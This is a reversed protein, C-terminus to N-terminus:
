PIRIKIVHLTGGIKVGINWYPHTRLSHQMYVGLAWRHHGAAEFAVDRQTPRLPYVAADYYVPRRATGNVILTYARGVHVTFAGREYPAGVLYQARVTVTLSARTINGARDTATARYTVRTGHVTKALRCSAVNSLRDSAVCRASPASGGYTAGDRPGAISVKPRTLDIDIGRVAVTAVGGDTATITRTVSQGAGQHRLMVADPCPRTLPAGATTCTYTVTVPSRYWGADSRHRASSLRATIKPDHRTISASSATFDPDGSYVAAVTHARGTPVTYTVAAVGNVLTATGVANGGVSFAVAGTPTGIGPAVAAVVARLDHAHVSLTTTTAAQDVVPTVSGTASTYTVGDDPTFVASVPHSGPALAAGGPATLAPSLATGGSVVVPAGLDTGDVSFQVMGAPTGSDATVTATAHVEQGYVSSAPSTTVSVATGVKTVAITQQVQTAPAFTGDGSQDFDVVCSGAADFSVTSGTLSCASDTTTPDISFAVDLGSDSNAALPYSGSVSAPSPPTSTITITQSKRVVTLTFAQDAHGASNTATLTLPYAGASDAAPTGALTGTGDGNDVFSVGSPLTGSETLTTATPFGATTTLTLSGADGVTFTTHDVSTIAPPADVTLTFNQTADPAVGNSATITFSYAGAAIPTGGLSAAGDGNDVFTVGPPLAGVETLTTTPPEADDATTVTFAGATGRHFTTHDASTIVPAQEITVTTPASSVPAYDADGAKTATVTCTGSTTTSLTYPPSASVACGSATGDIAAYTVAGTGSGGSTTLTLPVGITGTGSTVTLPTQAAPALTVTTPDSSIATYNLDGAKTATVTCTGASETSLTYPPSASVACGTATGDVAAYTVAGTGSGGSTTLPLPTLNTGSTSTVILASQAAPALTVTTPDSSAPPYDTDGAKTATVTCTGAGASSLTYPPSASVACGTSTGDVAAFTVAGTGSGGSTTLPLPTLYTGTTSTLILPDQAAFMFTVTTPASSTALYNLDGAKHAVVTCNGAGTSSLTYPATPSITCVTSGNFEVSYTVAGIGGGGSITLPLSTGVTGSTSTLSLAPQEVNVASSAEVAGITCLTMEAFPGTIGRQDVRPCGPGGGITTGSPIQNIAPSTLAPRMTATPGGNDQLPGLQPDVNGVDTQDTFSCATGPDLNYGVSLWQNPTNGGCGPGVISAGASVTGFNNLIDATSADIGVNGTVTSSLITVVGVANWIGGGFTASNGTVTSSVITFNGGILGGGQDSSNGSVTSRTITVPDDTFEFIGGGQGTNVAQNGSITSDTISVPGNGTFIAGGGFGCGCEGAVNNSITSNTIVLSGNFNYIGAGSAAVNNTVTSNSLTLDGDSLIGGGNNGNGHQIVLHDLTVTWGPNYVTIDANSGDLVAPDDAPANVGTITVSNTIEVNDHITGSVNITSGGGGQTLAHTVTACPSGPSACDNAVDSGGAAVYMTVAAASAPAAAFVFVVAPAVLAISVAARFLRWRAPKQIPRSQLSLGMFSELGLTVM